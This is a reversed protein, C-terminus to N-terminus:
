ERPFTQAVLVYDVLRDLEEPPLHDFPPMAVGEPPQRIYSVLDARAMQGGVLALDIAVRRGHGAVAHCSNCSHRAFLQRGYEAEETLTIGEPVPPPEDMPWGTWDSRQRLSTLVLLAIVACSVFAVAIPRKRLGRNPGRDLFPLLVLAFFLVIPFLVVFGPAIARPLLAILASYWAFWWEEAPFSTQDLNPEDQIESAGFVIALVVVLAFFLYATVGSKAATDPYFFEGDEESEADRRYRARQADASATPERRESRSTTGHHIVLYLHYGVLALILGPVIVVHLGYFRTLTLSGIERGGQIFVVLEEGIWPINYFMHTAVRLSHVSREDWRLVYGSYSMFIVAFFLLVGVLWTGERPAKYGGLLIQRFLHFFLMVVMLGASWYHLGRIFWGLTQQETLYRVSQHASDVDPSYTLTMLAGTVILVVLLLTLTAGDGFYWEGKAVRRRLAHVWIPRAAFRDSLWRLPKQFM